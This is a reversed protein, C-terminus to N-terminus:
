VKPISQYTISLANFRRSPPPSYIIVGHLHPREFHINFLCKIIDTSSHHSWKSATAFQLHCRNCASSGLTSIVIVIPFYIRETWNTVIDKLVQRKFWLNAHRTVKMSHRKNFNKKEFTWSSLMHYCAKNGPCHGNFCSWSLFFIVASSPWEM